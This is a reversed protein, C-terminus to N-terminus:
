PHVGTTTVNPERFVSWYLRLVDPSQAVVAIDDDGDGDFDGTDFAVVRADNIVDHWATSGRGATIWRISRTMRDLVVIRTEQGHVSFQVDAVSAIDVMGGISSPAAFEGSPTGSLSWFQMSPESAHVLVDKTGDGDLDLFWLRIRQGGRVPLAQLLSRRSMSRVSDGYAVAIEVNSTDHTSFAYLIDPVDDSDVSAVAAGWLITPSLLRFNQEIFRDPGLQEFFSLSFRESTRLINLVAFGPLGSPAPFSALLAPTGETPVVAGSLSRDRVDYSLVGVTQEETSGVLLQFSTDAVSQVAISSPVSGFKHSIPGRLRRGSKGWYVDVTKERGSIVVLDIVSDPDLREAVIGAPGPGCVYETRTPDMLPMGSRRIIAMENQAPSTVVLEVSGFASALPTLRQPNFPLAVRVEETFTTTDGGLAISLLGGSTSTILDAIGDGDLQVLTMSTVEDDFALIGSPTFEGFDSGLWYQVERGANTSVAFAAPMRRSTSAATIQQVEVDLPYRNQDIFRGGGVGYWLQVESRVWDYAVIDSLRDNNLAAVAFTGVMAEQAIVARPVFRGQATAILPLIGPVNRDAVLLDVRGDGTVDAAVVMAPIIPLTLSQQLQVSDASSSKVIHIAKAARDVLGLIAVGSQGGGVLIAEDFSRPVRVPFEELITWNSDVVQRFLLQSSSSPLIVTARGAQWPTVMLPSDVAGSLTM